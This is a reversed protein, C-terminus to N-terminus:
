GGVSRAIFSSAIVGVVLALGTLAILQWRASAVEAEAAQNAELGLQNQIKTLGDIGKLWKMLNSNVVNTINSAINGRDTSVTALIAAAAAPDSEQAAAAARTLEQQIRPVVSESMSLVQRKGYEIATMPVKAEEPLPAVKVLAQYRAMAEDNRKRATAMEEQQYKLDEPDEAVVMSLLSAYITSTTVQMTGLLQLREAQDAAVERLQRTVKDMRWLSAATTVVLLMLVLGFGLALSHTIRLNAFGHPALPLTRSKM